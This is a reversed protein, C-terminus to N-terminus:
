PVQMIRTEFWRVDVNVVEFEWIRDTTGVIYFRTNKKSGWEHKLELQNPDSNFSIQVAACFLEKMKQQLSQQRQHISCSKPKKYIFM